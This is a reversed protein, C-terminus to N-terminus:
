GPLDGHGALACSISLSGAVTRRHRCPCRRTRPPKEDAVELKLAARFEDLAEPAAEIVLADQAALRTTRATGYRRKGDRILGLIVVDNKEAEEYLEMVRTGILNSEAPVVLESVFDSYSEMPDTKEGGTGSQPILRWGGLAVSALDVFEGDVRTKFTVNPVTQGERNQM